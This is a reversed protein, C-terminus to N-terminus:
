REESRDLASVAALVAAVREVRNPSGFTGNKRQRPVVTALADRAIERAAPVDLPAVAHLLAFPNLRKGSARLLSLARDAWASQRLKPHAGLSRVAVLTCNPHGGLNRCWGGSERQTGLLAHIAPQLREDGAAGARCLAEVAYSLPILGWAYCSTPGARDRSSQREARVPSKPGLLPEYTRYHNMESAGHAMVQPQGRDEYPGFFGCLDCPTRLSGPTVDNARGYGPQAALVALLYSRGRAIVTEARGVRLDALLCLVGATKMPSGAFSGGAAQESALASVTARAAEPHGSRDLGLRRRARIAAPGEQAMLWPIPDYTLM